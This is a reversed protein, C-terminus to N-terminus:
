IREFIMVLVQSLVMAGILFEWKQRNMKFIQLVLVNIFLVGLVIFIQALEVGIAFSFLSLGAADEPILMSFYRGFGLGHIIGFLVTMIPFFWSKESEFFHKKTLLLPISSLGITIPILLEILYSSFQIEAYFNGVLSLTHGITFLTVWLLLKKGQKFTFPLALTVIFYFHDLGQWDIVHWFGLDSYFWLTDMM